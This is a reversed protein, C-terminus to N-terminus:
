LLSICSGLSNEAIERIANFLFRCLIFMALSVGQNKEKIIDGVYASYFSGELDAIRRALTCSTGSLPPEIRIHAVQQQQGRMEHLLAIKMGYNGMKQGTIEGM